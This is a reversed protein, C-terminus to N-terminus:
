YIYISQEERDQLTGTPQSNLKRRMTYSGAAGGAGWDKNVSAKFDLGSNSTEM